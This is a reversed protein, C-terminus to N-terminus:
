HSTRTDMKKMYDVSCQVLSRLTHLDVDALRKIYLCGKGTKYKGLSRMLDEHQEFGGMLYLVLQQTRPAVGVLFWDGERGSAYRYHYDGFGVISSGWIKPEARTIERMLDVVAAADRRKQDDVIADLFAEVSVNTPKTKLEAM